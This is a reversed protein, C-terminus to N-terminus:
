GKNDDLRNILGTFTQTTAVICWSSLYDFAVKLGAALYMVVFVPIYLIGIVIILIMRM